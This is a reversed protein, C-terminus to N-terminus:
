GFFVVAGALMFALLGIYALRRDLRVTRTSRYSSGMHGLVLAVILMGTAIFM